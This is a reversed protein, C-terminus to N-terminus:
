GKTVCVDLAVSRAGYGGSVVRAVRITLRSPTNGDPVTVSVNPSSTAAKKPDSGPVNLSSQRIDSRSSMLKLLDAEKMFAKPLLFPRRFSGVLVRITFPKWGTTGASEIRPVYVYTRDSLGLYTEQDVVQQPLPQCKQPQGSVIAVLVVSLVIGVVPPKM